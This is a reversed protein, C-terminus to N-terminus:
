LPLNKARRCGAFAGADRRRAAGAASSSAVACGTCRSSHRAAPAAGRPWRRARRPYARVRTSRSRGTDALHDVFRSIITHAVWGRARHRRRVRGARGAGPPDAPLRQWGVQRLRASSRLVQGPHHGAERRRGRRHAAHASRLRLLAPALHADPHFPAQDEVADELPQRSGECPRAPTEALPCRAFCTAAPRSLITRSDQSGVKSPSACRSGSDDGPNERLAFQQDFRQPIAGSRGALVRRRRGAVVQSQIRQRRGALSPQLLGLPFCTEAAPRCDRAACLATPGVSRQNRISRDERTRRSNPDM